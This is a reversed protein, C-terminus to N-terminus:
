TLIENEISQFYAKDHPKEKRIEAHVDDSPTDDEHVERQTLDGHEADRESIEDLLVARDDRDDKRHRSGEKERKDVYLIFPQLLLRNDANDIGHSGGGGYEKDRLSGM